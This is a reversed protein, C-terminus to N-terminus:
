KKNRAKKWLFVFAIPVVAMLILALRIVGGNAAETNPQKLLQLDSSTLIKGDKATYIAPEGNPPSFRYDAIRSWQPASRRTVPGIISKDFSEGVGEYIALTDLEDVSKGGYRPIFRTLRFRLPLFIENFNTWTLVEFVANTYGQKYLDPFAEKGLFRKHTENVFILVKEDAYEVVREIANPYNKSKSVNCTLTNGGIHPWGPGMFAMPYVKNTNASPWACSSAYALWAPTILGIHNPPASNTYIDVFANHEIVTKQGQSTKITRRGDDLRESGLREKFYATFWSSTSNANHEYKEVQVSNSDYPILPNEQSVILTSCGDVSVEFSNTQQEALQDGIWFKYEVKGSVSFKRAADTAVSSFLISFYCTATLVLRHFSYNSFKRGDCGPSCFSHKPIHANAM